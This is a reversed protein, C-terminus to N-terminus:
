GFCGSGRVSVMCCLRFTLLRALLLSLCLPSGSRMNIECVKNINRNNKMQAYKIKNKSLSGADTTSDGRSWPGHHWDVINPTQMIM